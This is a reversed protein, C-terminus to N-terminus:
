SSRNPLTQIATLSWGTSFLGASETSENVNNITNTIILTSLYDCLEKRHARHNNATGRAGPSLVVRNM